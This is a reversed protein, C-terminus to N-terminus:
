VCDFRFGEPGGMLTQSEADQIFHAQAEGTEAIWRLQRRMWMRQTEPILPVSCAIHLPWILSFKGTHKSSSAGEMSSQPWLSNLSDYAFGDASRKLKSFDFGLLFPISACLDDVISRNVMDTYGQYIKPHIDISSVRYLISQTVLRYIRYLNWVRATYLNSYQHIEIPVFNSGLLQPSIRIVTSYSWQVPVRTTWNALDRDVEEAARILELVESINVVSIPQSLLTNALSQLKPIRMTKSLLQDEVNEYSLPIKAFEHFISDIPTSLQM